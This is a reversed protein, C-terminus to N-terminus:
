IFKIEGKEELQWNQNDQNSVIAPQIIEFDTYTEQYVQCDFIKQFNDYQYQNINITKKPILHYKDHYNFIWYNGKQDNTFKIKKLSGSRNQEIIEQPVTVKTVKLEGNKILDYFKQYSSNQKVEPENNVLTNPIEDSQYNDGLGDSFYKQRDNKAFSTHDNTNCAESNLNPLHITTQSSQSEEMIAQKEESKCEVGSHSNQNQLQSELEAVRNKLSKIQQHLDKEKASNQSFNVSKSDATLSDKNSAVLLNKIDLKQILKDVIKELLQDLLCNESESNNSYNSM